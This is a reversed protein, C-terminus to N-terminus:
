KSITVDNGLGFDSKILINTRLSIPLSLRAGIFKTPFQCSWCIIFLLWDQHAYSNTQCHSTKWILNKALFKERQWKSRWILTMTM